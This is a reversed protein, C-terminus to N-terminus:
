IGELLRLLCIQQFISFIRGKGCPILSLDRIGGLLGATRQVKSAKLVLITESRMSIIKQLLVKENLKYISFASIYYKFIFNLTHYHYLQELNWTKILNSRLIPVPCLLLVTQLLFVQKTKLHLFCRSRPVFIYHIGSLQIIASNDDCGIRETSSNVLSAFGCDLAHHPKLPPCAGLGGRIM